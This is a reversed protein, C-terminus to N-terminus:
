RLRDCLVQTISHHGKSAPKRILGSMLQRTKAARAECERRYRRLRKRIVWEAYIRTLFRM